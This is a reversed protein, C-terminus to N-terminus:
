RERRELIRLCTKCTVPDFTPELKRGVGTQGWWGCLTMGNALLSDGKRFIVAHIAGGKYSYNM